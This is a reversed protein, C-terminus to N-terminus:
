FSPNRSHFPRDKKVIVIKGENEDEKELNEDNKNHGKRESKKQLRFASKLGNILRRGLNKEVAGPSGESPFSGKVGVKKVADRYSLSSISGVQGKSIKNTESSFRFSASRASDIRNDISESENLLKRMGSLEKELTQIRSNTASMVAKMQSVQRLAADRELITGLTTASDKPEPNTRHHDTAASIISRRTNLQQLFMAQVVFRLPMRPNQVAHMILPPSLISCDIYNCIQIKEEEGIKGINEKLYTDIIRYLLDHRDTLRQSVSEVILKLDEIMVGKFGELYGVDGDSEAATLNLAEICRSVLSATTEAEPLLPLCSRLVISACEKNVAVVRRFYAETIQKLNEHGPGGIATMALLEAATLLAAVNFPTVAIHTGYCFDTVLSFTQPTINLPPSLTIEPFECLRRKLYASKAILAAQSISYICVMVQKEDCM